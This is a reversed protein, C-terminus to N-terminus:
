FYNTADGIDVSSCCVLSNALLGSTTQVFDRLEFLKHGFVPFDSTLYFSAPHDADIEEFIRKSSLSNWWEGCLVSSLPEFDSSLHL